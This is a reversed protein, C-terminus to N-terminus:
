QLANDFSRPAGHRGGPVRVVHVSCHANATVNSAVSRLWALRKQKPWPAGLVILSVNNARALQLLTDGARASEVVHLSLRATPLNLPEIWQRLRLVHELHRGSATEADTSGEGLPAAGIVSVCMLRIEPDLAIIQRTTWQLAPHRADDLHQTDVAVMIVPASILTVRKPAPEERRNRWWRGIQGFVGAGETLEARRTLPVQDPHRLDFAIHAASQYREDAVPELCRLIVEQLWRPIREDVSRPPSPARWLRDRMGAYTSPAGFPQLGTALEYLLVGLAFLDSRPDSRDNRLQEPSVYAASGAAFHQEEGLLDPYRAHRAYGFDLVVADGNGRLIFNEPKLDFHIVEQSHLSTVADALAAGVRVVESLALPANAIHSSLSEGEIWEMAIYPTASLDGSKVFHPVHPGSLAPLIMQEMEFGVIALTPQARGIAPAKLVIPFGPDRDAPPTVQYVFGNGGAHICEGVLFGDVTAGRQFRELM